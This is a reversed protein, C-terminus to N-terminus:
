RMMFSHREAAKNLWGRWIKSEELMSTVKVQAIDRENLARVFEPLHAWPPEERDTALHMLVIGGELRPFALLRNMIRKSDRYRASHEDDIWDLADLSRGELSSWRVHLYGIEFAWRRLAACSM